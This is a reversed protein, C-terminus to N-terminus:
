VILCRAVDNACVNLAVNANLHLITFNGNGSDVIHNAKSLIYYFIHYGLIM